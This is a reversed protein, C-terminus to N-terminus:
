DSPDDCEDYLNCLWIRRVAAASWAHGTQNQSSAPKGYKRRGEEDYEFRYTFYTSDATITTDVRGELCWILDDIARPSTQGSDPVTVQCSQMVAAVSSADLELMDHSEIESGAPDILDVLIATIAGSYLAGDGGEPVLTPITDYTTTLNEFNYPSLFPGFKKPDRISDLAPETVLAHYDAWGENYACGPTEPTFPYHVRCDDDIRALGGLKTEHLAHGYEHSFTFNGTRGWICDADPTSRNQVLRVEDLTPNYWCHVEVPPDVTVTIRGRSPFLKRSAAISEDTVIWARAEASHPFLFDAALDCAYRDFPINASTRSVVIARADELSITAEVITGRASCPVQISGDSGVSGGGNAILTPPTPGGGNGSYVNYTYGAGPLYRYARYDLDYYKVRLCVSSSPCVAAGLLHKVASVASRALEGFEAGFSAGVHGNGPTVFKRFPGPQNLFEPPIADPDFDKLTRGGNEDILLWLQAHSARQLPLDPKPSQGPGVQASAHVRYIGPAPVSLEATQTAKNGRGFGGSTEVKIPLTVDLPPKFTNDWGSQKAAEIEPFVLRLDADLTPFNATYTVAVNIPADPKLSGEAKISITFWARAAADDARDAQRKRDMRNPSSVTNALSAGGAPGAPMESRDFCGTLVFM